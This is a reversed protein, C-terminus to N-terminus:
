LIIKGGDIKESVFHVTCGSKTEKAKIIAEHVYHGYMGKGGFKPLLASHINIIRNEYEKLLEGQVIGM